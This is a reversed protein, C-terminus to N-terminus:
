LATGEATKQNFFLLEFHAALDDSLPGPMVIAVLDNGVQLHAYIAIALWTIEWFLGTAKPSAM